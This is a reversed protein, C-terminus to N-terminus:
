TGISVPPTSCSVVSFKTLFSRLLSSLIIVGVRIPKPAFDEDAHQSSEEAAAQSADEYDTDNDDGIDLEMPVIGYDEYNDEEDSFPIKNVSTWNHGRNATARAKRGGRRATPKAKM